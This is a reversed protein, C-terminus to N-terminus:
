LIASFLLALMPRNLFTPFLNNMLSRFVEITEGRTMEWFPVITLLFIGNNFSNYHRAFDYWCFISTLSLCLLIIPILKKQFLKETKFFSNIGILDVLSFFLVCCLPLLASAKLLVATTAFLLAFYFYGLRKNKYFSFLFCFAIISFSLAPVDSLFNFSYYVLLPSTLLLGVIFLILL